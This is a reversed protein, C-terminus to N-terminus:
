KTLRVKNISEAIDTFAKRLENQNAALYFMKQDTACNTLLQRAEPTNVRFLITYVQIGAAKANQCATRTKGDLFESARQFHEQPFRGGDRLYGYASYHSLTPGGTNNEGVENEGDTMVIMIKRNKPRTYPAGDSFPANPSLTRWGWMIGESTITGGGNYHSLSSIRGLLASRSNSLRLLEDPCAMNPGNTNPGVESYNANRNTFDYKLISPGRKWEGGDEWGLPMTTADDLYNNVYGSATGESALGPEDPWFYPTFQTNSNSLSPPDDTTDFPEPRAEVCGKWQARSGSRTRIGDFLDLHSIKAPNALVCTEPRTFGTPVLAQVPAPTYPPRVEISTGSWPATRNPTGYTGVQAAADKVGFLEKGINALKNLSDSLWVGRGGRGYPNPPPPPGPPGPPGPPPPVYFPNGNCNAINGIWRTRMWAAQFSSDGRTDVANLGLNTRGPNVSAVFPVVSVKLGGGNGASDFLSNILDSAALRLTAMDAAMSGTTDLVMAVELTNGGPAAEAVVDLSATNGLGPLLKVLVYKYEATASYRWGNDGLSQLQGRVRLLNADTGLNANFTANAAARREGETKGSMKAAALVAADAASAMKARLQSARNYDVAAGALGILPVVALGFMLAVGGRDNRVFRNLFRNPVSKM